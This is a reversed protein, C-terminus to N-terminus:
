YFHLIKQKLWHWSSRSVKLNEPKVKVLVGQHQPSKAADDMAKRPMEQTHIGFSQAQRQLRMLKEDDRTKLVWMELVREPQHKLLAEVAHLGFRYQMQKAM